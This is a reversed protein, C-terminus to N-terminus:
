KSRDFNLNCTITSDTLILNSTEQDIEENECEENRRGGGGRRPPGRDDDRERDGGRRSGGRDDDRERDGDRNKRNGLIEALWNEECQFEFDAEANAVVKANKKGGGGM